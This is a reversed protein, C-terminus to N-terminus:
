KKKKQKKIKPKHIGQLMFRIPEKANQKLLVVVKDRERYVDFVEIDKLVSDIEVKDEFRLPLSYNNGEVRVLMNEQKLVLWCVKALSLAYLSNSTEQLCLRTYEDRVITINGDSGAIDLYLVKTAQTVKKAKQLYNFLHNNSEKMMSVASFLAVLVIGLLAISILVELLTFAKRERSLQIFM